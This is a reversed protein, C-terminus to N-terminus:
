FCRYRWCLGATFLGRGDGTGCWTSPSEPKKYDTPLVILSEKEEQKKEVLKILIHRNFPKM